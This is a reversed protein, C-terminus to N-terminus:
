EALTLLIAGTFGALLGFPIYIFARPLPRGEMRRKRRIFFTLLHGFILVALSWTVAAPAILSSVVLTLSGTLAFVKELRTAAHTGTMRPVATMLFGAVYSLLFGAVMIQSHSR